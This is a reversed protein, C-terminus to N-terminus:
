KQRKQIAISLYACINEFFKASTPIRVASRQHRFRGSLWSRWLWPSHNLTLFPFFKFQLFWDLFFVIIKQSKGLQSPDFVRIRGTRPDRHFIRRSLPLIKFKRARRPGLKELTLTLTPPPMPTPQNSPPSSDGSTSTTTTTSRTRTPIASRTSEIRLLEPSPKSSVSAHRLVQFEMRFFNVFNSFELWFSANITFLPLRCGAYLYIVTVM